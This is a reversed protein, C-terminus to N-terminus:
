RRRAPPMSLPALRPQPRPGSAAGEFQVSLEAPKGPTVDVSQRREGLNPHRVVVDRSGIAAPIPGLPASGAREGDVVVEAGPVTNVVLVGMPVEVTHSSIEGAKVAVEIEDRYDFRPNALTIKHRGPTLSIHGDTSLGLKRGGESIEVPLKSTV